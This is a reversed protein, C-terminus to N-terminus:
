SIDSIGHSSTTSGASRPSQSTCPVLYSEALIAAEDSIKLTPVDEILKLGATRHPESFMEVERRVLLSTTARYYDMEREWWRITLDRRLTDDNDLYAGIVSSEIYITQRV